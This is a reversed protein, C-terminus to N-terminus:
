ATRWAPDTMMALFEAREEPTRGHTVAHRQAARITEPAPHEIAGFDDSLHSAIDGFSPSM